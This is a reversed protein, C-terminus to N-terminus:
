SKDVIWAVFYTCMVRLLKTRSLSVVVLRSVYDVCLRVIVFLSLLMNGTCLHAVIWGVLAQQM